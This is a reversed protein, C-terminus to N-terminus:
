PSSEDTQLEWVIRVTKQMILRELRSTAASLTSFEDRMMALKPGILLPRAQRQCMRGNESRSTREFNWERMFIYRLSSSLINTQLFINSTLFLWPKRYRRCTSLPGTTPFAVSALVKIFTLGSSLTHIHTHICARACAVVMGNDTEAHVKSLASHHIHSFNVIVTDIVKRGFSKVASM